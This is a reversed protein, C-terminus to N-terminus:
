DEQFGIAANQKSLPPHSRGPPAQRRIDMASRSSPLASGWPEELNPITEVAFAILSLVILMQIVWEWRGFTVRGKSDRRVM